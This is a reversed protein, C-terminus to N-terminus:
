LLLEVGPYAADCGVAEDRVRGARSWFKHPAAARSPSEPVDRPCVFTITVGGSIPSVQFTASVLDFSPAAEPFRVGSRRM